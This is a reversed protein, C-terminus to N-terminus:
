FIHKIGLWNAFYVTILCHFELIETLIIGLRKKKRREPLIREQDDTTLNTILIALEM